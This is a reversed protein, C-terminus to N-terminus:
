QWTSMPLCPCCSVLTARGGSSDRGSSGSFASATRMTSRHSRCVSCPKGGSDLWFQAFDLAVTQGTEPFHIGPQGVAAAGVLRPGVATVVGSALTAGAIRLARRRSYGATDAGSVYGNIQTSRSPYRVAQM